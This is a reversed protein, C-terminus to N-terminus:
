PSYEANLGKDLSHLSPFREFYPRNNAWLSSRFEVSLVCFLVRISPVEPMEISKHPRSVCRLQNYASLDKWIQDGLERLALPSFDFCFVNSGLYRIRSMPGIYQVPYMKDPFSIGASLLCGIYRVPVECLM